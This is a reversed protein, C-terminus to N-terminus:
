VSPFLPCCVGGLLCLLSFEGGTGVGILEGLELGAGDDDVNDRLM